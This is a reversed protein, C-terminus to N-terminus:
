SWWTLWDTLWDTQRDTQGGTRRDTRGCPVVGSGNSSNEYFKIYSYKEFTHGSFEREMLIQCSYRTGGVCVLAYKQDFIASNRKSHTNNRAFNTSFIFVCMKQEIVKKEELFWETILFHPFINYLDPVGGAVIYYPAHATCAPYRPSFM